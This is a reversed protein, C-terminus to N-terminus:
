QKEKFDISGEDTLEQVKLEAKDLLDVCHRILYQGREFLQMSDDLPKEGTELAAVIKELEAFAVEFTLGETPKPETKAM